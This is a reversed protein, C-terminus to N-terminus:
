KNTKKQTPHEQLIFLNEISWAKGRDVIIDVMIEFDEIAGEDKLTDLVELVSEGPGCAKLADAFSISIV